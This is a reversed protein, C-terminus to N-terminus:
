LCDNRGFQSGFVGFDGLNVQGNDDFDADPNYNADGTISGFAAGFVGFDGLNVSGNNDFDASCTNVSGIITVTVTANQDISDVGFPAGDALSVVFVSGDELVLDLLAGGRDIVEFPVGPTAPLPTGDLLASQAIFHLTGGSSARVDGIIDGGSIHAVGGSSIRISSTSSGMGVEGGMVNLIGGARVSQTGLAIGSHLSCVAGHEISLGSQLVAGDLTFVTGNLIDLGAGIEGATANFETYAIVCEAGMVGGTMDLQAGVAAFGAPLEGTGSLTLAQGFRLVDPGIGNPVSVAPPGPAPVVTSEVIGTSFNPDFHDFLRGFFFLNGDALTAVLLDQESDFGAPFETVLMGNHVFEDGHISITADSLFLRDNNKGAKVIVTSGDYLGISGAEGGKLNLVSDAHFDSGGVLAGGLELDLVVDSLHLPMGDDVGFEGGDNLIITSGGLDFPTAFGSGLQDIRGADNVVFATDPGLVFTQGQFVGANFDAEDMVQGANVEVITGFDLALDLTLTAGADIEGNTLDSDDNLPLILSSGDALVASLSGTRQTVVVSGSDLDVPTGNVSASNVRLVLSTGDLAFIPGAFNGGRIDVAANGRLGFNQGITGGLITMVMGTDANFNAGITGGDNLTVAANIPTANGFDFPFSSGAFFGGSNIEIVSGQFDAFMGAFGNEFNGITGGSNVRFTTGLGLSFPQFDGFFIGSSLDLGTLSQGNDISVVQGMTPLTTFLVMAVSAVATRSNMRM